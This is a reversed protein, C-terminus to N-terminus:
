KPRVTQQLLWGAIFILVGVASMTLSDKLYLKEAVEGSIALPLMILGVLQMARALRFLM